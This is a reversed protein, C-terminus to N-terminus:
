AKTGSVRIPKAGLEIDFSPVLLCGNAIQPFYQAARVLYQDKDMLNADDSAGSDDVELTNGLKVGGHNTLVYRNHLKEGNQRQVLRVFTVELGRKIHQPMKILCEDNFTQLDPAREYYAAVLVTVTKPPAVTRGAVIQDIIGELVIRRDRKNARFYPDIVAVEDAIRLMPALESAIDAVTRNPTAARRVDWRPIEKLEVEDAVIVQDANTPNSTAIIGQFPSKLGAIIANQVWTKGNYQYPNSQRVISTEILQKAKEVVRLQEVPGMNGKQSELAEGFKKRWHSKTPFASVWRPQGLGFASRFIRANYDKGWSAVVEPDIAYEHIM